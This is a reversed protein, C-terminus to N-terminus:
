WSIAKGMSDRSELAEEERKAAPEVAKKKKWLNAQVKVIRSATEALKQLVAYQSETLERPQQDLCCISGIVTTDDQGILPFGCYYRIGFKQVPNNRHFRVDAEPHPVVLPKNEFILHTCFTHEREFAVDQLFDLNTGAIYQDEKDIVTILTVFCGLEKAAINCIIDFEEVKGIERIGSEKILQLRYEENDPLPYMMQAEADSGPDVQYTREEANAFEEEPEPAPEVKLQAKLAAVVERDSSMPTFLPAKPTIIPALPTSPQSSNSDSDQDLLHKIVSVVSERQGRSSASLLADQLMDTLMTDAPKENSKGRVLNPVRLSRISINGYNATDVRAICRDCVRIKDVKMRTSRLEIRERDYKESCKDCIFHGCIRCLKALVLLKDCCLCCVNVPPRFLNRDALVQVGLRRSRIVQVFRSCDRAMQRLRNKVAKEAAGTKTSPLVFRTQHPTFMEAYFYVRSMHPTKAKSSSMSPPPHQGFFYDTGSGKDSHVLYSVVVNHLQKVGSRAKESFVDEADLSTSMKEFREGTQDDYVADMYCWEEHRSLWGSKNFTATKVALQVLPADARTPPVPRVEDGYIDVNHVFDGERFETGYMAEMVRLHEADKTAHMLHRLEGVSCPIVGIALVAYRKGDQKSYVAFDKVSEEWKWRSSSHLIKDWEITASTENNVTLLDDDGIVLCRSPMALSPPKPSSGDRRKHQREQEEHFSSLQSLNSGRVGMSPTSAASAAPSASHDSAGSSDSPTVSLGSVRTFPM